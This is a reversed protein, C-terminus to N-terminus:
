LAERTGTSSGLAGDLTQLREIEDAAEYLLPGLVTHDRHIFAVDRLRAVLDDSM